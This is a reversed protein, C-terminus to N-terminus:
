RIILKKLGIKAPVGLATPESIMNDAAIDKVTTHFKKAVQFLTENEDPYYVTISSPTKKYEVDGVLECSSLYRESEACGLSYSVSYWLELSLNDADLEWEC